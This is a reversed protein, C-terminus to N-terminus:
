PLVQRADAVWRAAAKADLRVGLSGSPVAAGPLDPLALRQRRRVDGRRGRRRHCGHATRPASRSRAQVRGSLRQRLGDRRRPRCRRVQGLAGGHGGAPGARGRRPSAGLEGPAARQGVRPPRDAIRRDLRRRRPRCRRRSSAAASAAASLSPIGSHLPPESQESSSSYAASLSRPLCAVDVIRTRRPRDHRWDLSGPTAM